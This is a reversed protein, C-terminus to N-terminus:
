ILVGKDSLQNEQVSLLMANGAALIVMMQQLM